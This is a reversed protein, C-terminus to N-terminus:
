NKKSPGVVPDGPRKTGRDVDPLPSGSRAVGRQFAASRSSRPLGRLSSSGRAGRRGLPARNVSSPGSRNALRDELVVFYQSMAGVFTGGARVYALSLDDQTLKSGFKSMSDVFNYGRGIGESNSQSGEKVRYQLLPRSIFGQVYADDTENILKKALAKLIEIRVRTAQTVSNAFFLSSFESHEEKALRVGERRFLQAGSVSDFRVEVLPQGRDKRINIYVDVARPCPDVTVCALTVLRTVTDIYHKKKDLHTHMGPPPLPLGTIVVRDERSRNLEADAEEKLRAFIFDDERFRRKAFAEFATTSKVLSSVTLGITELSDLKNASTNVIELIQSLRDEAGPTGSAPTAPPNSVEVLMTQLESDLHSMFRDGGAPTLHIGDGELMSPVTLFPNCVGIRSSGARGVEATLFQHFDPLYSAFWAPVSRFMPPCIIINVDPLRLVLSRLGEVHATIQQRGFLLVEDDPVGVCGDSIFNELVSTVVLSASTVTLLHSDFVAKKTCSVLKFGRGSFLGSSIARDFNRYM